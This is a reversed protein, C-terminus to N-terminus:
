FTSLIYNTNSLNDISSITNLRDKSIRGENFIIIQKQATQQIKSKWKDISLPILNYDPYLSKNDLDDKTSIYIYSPITPDRYFYVKNDHTFNTSLWNLLDLEDFVITKRKSITGYIIINKDSDFLQYHTIIGYHPYLNTKESEFIFIYKNSIYESEKKKLFPIKLIGIFRKNTTNFNETKVSPAYKFVKDPPNNHLAYILPIDMRKALSFAIYLRNLFLTYLIYKSCIDKNPKLESLTNIGGLIHFLGTCQNFKRLQEVRGLMFVKKGQPIVYKDIMERTDSPLLPDLVCKMNNYPINRNNFLLAESIFINKLKKLQRIIAQKEDIPLEELTNVYEIMSQFRDKIGKEKIKQNRFFQQIRPLRTSNELEFYGNATSSATLCANFGSIRENLVNSMGEPTNLRKLISTDLSSENGYNLKKKILYDIKRVNQGILHNRSKNTQYFPKYTEILKNFDDKYIPENFQFLEVENINILKKRDVVVRRASSSGAGAGAEEGVQVIFQPRYRPSDYEELIDKLVEKYMPTNKINDIMVAFDSPPPMGQRPNVKKTVPYPKWPSQQPRVEVEAEVHNALVPSSNPSIRRWILQGTANKRVFEEGRESPPVYLAM